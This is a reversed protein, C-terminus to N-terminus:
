LTRSGTPASRRRERQFAILGAGFVVVAAVGLGVVPASSGGSGADPAAAQRTPVETRRGDPGVIEFPVRAPTGFQPEGKDDVQTAVVVYHGPETNPVAFTGSVLGRADPAFEGLVPGELGNWRVVVPSPPAGEEPAAFSFGSMTVATGPAGSTASTDLTAVNTCAFAAVGGVTVVAAAVAFFLCVRGRALM